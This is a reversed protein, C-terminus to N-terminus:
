PLPLDLKQHKAAEPLIPEFRERVQVQWGGERLKAVAYAFRLKSAIEGGRGQAAGQM